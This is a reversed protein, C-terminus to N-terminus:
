SSWFDKATEIDSKKKLITDKANLLEKTEGKFDEKQRRWNAVHMAYALDM